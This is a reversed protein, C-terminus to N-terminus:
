KKPKASTKAPPPGTPIKGELKKAAEEMTHHGDESTKQLLEDKIDKPIQKKKEEPM